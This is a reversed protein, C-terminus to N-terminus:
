PSVVTLYFHTIIMHPLGYIKTVLSIPRLFSLLFYEPLALTVHCQVCIGGFWYGQTTEVGYVKCNALYLRSLTTFPVVALDFIVGGGKGLLTGVM